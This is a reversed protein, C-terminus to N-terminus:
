LWQEHSVPFFRLSATIWLFFRMLFICFFAGGARVKITRSTPAKKIQRGCDDLRCDPPKLRLVYKNM